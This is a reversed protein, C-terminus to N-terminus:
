LVHIPLKLTVPGWRSVSLTDMSLRGLLGCVCGMQLTIILDQSSKLIEIWYRWFMNKSSRLTNCVWIWCWCVRVLPKFMCFLSHYRFRLLGFPRFPTYRNDVLCSCTSTCKNINNLRFTRGLLYFACICIFHLM